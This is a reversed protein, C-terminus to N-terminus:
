AAEKKGRGGILEALREVDTRRILRVRFDLPDDVTEVKQRDMLLRLRRRDVGLVDAAEGLTMYEEAHDM